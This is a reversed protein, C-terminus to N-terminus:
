MALRRTENVSARCLFGETRVDSPFIRRQRLRFTCVAAYEQPVEGGEHPRITDHTIPSTITPARETSVGHQAYMPPEDIAEIRQIVRNTAVLARRELASPLSIQRLSRRTSFRSAGRQRRRSACALTARNRIELM